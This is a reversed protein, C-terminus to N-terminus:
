TLLYRSGLGSGSQRPCWEAACSRGLCVSPNRAAETRSPTRPEQVALTPLHPRQTNADHEGAVPTEQCCSGGKEQSLPPNSNTTPKRRTYRYKDLPHGRTNFIFCEKKREQDPCHGLTHGSPVIWVCELVSKPYFM